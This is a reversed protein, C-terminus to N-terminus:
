RVFTTANASLAVSSLSACSSGAVLEVTLTKEDPMAMLLVGNPQGLPLGGPTRDRNFNDFCYVNGDPKVASFDRNILGRDQVAYSYLGMNMGSISTGVAMVPTAPEVYDRALGLFRSLDTTNSHYSGSLFWNGQATGPIDQMYTGGIPEATRMLTGFVNGTKAEIQAKVDANYYDLPSAYYLYYLDYHSQDIFASPPLRFDIVGFDVGATDPGTGFIEGAEVPINLGERRCTTTLGGDGADFSNCSPAAKQFEAMLKDSITAIHGFYIRVERCPYIFVQYNTKGSLSFSAEYIETVTSKGPSRVPKPSATQGIPTMSFSSHKAPFMHIPPSLFGLPRFAIFDEIAVPSVSFLPTAIDGPCSALYSPGSGTYTGGGGAGADVGSYGGGGGGCTALILSSAFVAPHLVGRRANVVIANLKDFHSLLWPRM